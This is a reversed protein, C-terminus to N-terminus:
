GFGEVWYGLKPAPFSSTLKLGDEGGSDMWRRRRWGPEKGALHEQDPVARQGDGPPLTGERSNLIGASTLGSCSKELYYLEDPILCAQQQRTLDKWMERPRRNSVRLGERESGAGERLLRQTDEKRTLQRILEGSFDRGEPADQKRSGGM